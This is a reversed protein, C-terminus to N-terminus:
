VAPFQGQHNIALPVNSEEIRTFAGLPVHGGSASRVYIQSLNRPSQKFPPKVELVVHYQNLQTFMTSVQRQGFADDLTDDIMQPTIGLRSATVRDYGLSAQLGNNQQDSSVDALGPLKRMEQLLTPGWRTLDELNDSQITYQYQANSLRAGIRLDQVGQLYLAAGPVTALKPRLRNILQDASVNREELPKLAMFVRGTNTTTGAGSGTFAMVNAVAPDARVIDVFRTIRQRMAQFSTDQVGQIGGTLRGTDQQPFFGKPVIILLYVNVGITLLLVGLTLAAHRLVWALSREYVRLVWLFVEESARYLRGHDEERQRKLLGACMM